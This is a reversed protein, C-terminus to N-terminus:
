KNIVKKTHYKANDKKSIQINIKKLNSLKISYKDGIKGSFKVLLTNGDLYKIYSKFLKKKKYKWSKFIDNNHKPALYLIYYRDTKLKITANKSTIKYFPYKISKTLFKWKLHKLEEDEFYDIKVKYIHNSLLRKMPFLTFQFRTHKENPDNSYDMLLTNTVEKDKEDFLKFNKIVIDKDDYYYKNFEISVPYGSVSSDPLPDPTEEFFVPPINISNKPPWIIYKPAEQALHNKTSYYLSKEVKFKKDSCVKYVYGSKASFSYGECLINLISNGMNYNYVTYRKKSKNIGIGIEDINNRLFGFRHYIASMLADISAHITKHGASLNEFYFLSKYGLYIGRDIPKDGTYLNSPYKTNDEDHMLNKKYKQYIDGIYNAHNQAANELVRNYELTSLGANIRLLNLYELGVKTDSAYINITIIFLILLKM